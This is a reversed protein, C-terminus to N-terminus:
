KIDGNKRKKSIYEDYLLINNKSEVNLSSFNKKYAYIEDFASDLEGKIEVTCVDSIENDSITGKKSAGNIESGTKYKVKMKTKVLGDTKEIVNAVGEKSTPSPFVMRGNKSGIVKRISEDIGGFIPDYDWEANLPHFRFSLETIKEVDKLAENVSQSTKIGTVYIKPSPLKAEKTLKRRENEALIYERLVYSFTVKFSRIDPSENQNKILVMRHNKLFVMFASYPASPIRKDTKQLEGEAYESKIAVIMDKVLIGKIVLDDRYETLECDDLLYRVEDSAKRSIGSKLAPMVIDDVRKILPEEDKGFILNLDAVVMQKASM